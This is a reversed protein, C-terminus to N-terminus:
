KQSDSSNIDQYYDQRAQSRTEDTAQQYTQLENVFHEVDTGKAEVAPITVVGNTKLVLNMEYVAAEILKDIDEPTVKDGLKKAIYLKVEAKKAAGNGAGMIQEIAQVAIKVWEYYKTLNENGIRASLYKVLYGGGVSIILSVVLIVFQM